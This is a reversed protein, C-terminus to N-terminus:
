HEPKRHYTLDKQVLDQSVIQIMKRNIPHLWVGAFGTFASLSPEPSSTECLRDVLVDSLLHSILIM